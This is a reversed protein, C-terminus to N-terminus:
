RAPSRWPSRSARRSAPAKAGSSTTTVQYGAKKMVRELNRLAIEEDDVILLRPPEPLTTM